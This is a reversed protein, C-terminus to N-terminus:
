DSAVSLAEIALVTSGDADRLPPGAVHVDAIVVGPIVFEVEEVRDIMRRAIAESHDGVIRLAIRHREGDFTLSHWGTSRVETLLIRERAAGSRAILGRLLGAAAPSLNLGSM